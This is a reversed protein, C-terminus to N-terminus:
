QTLLNRVAESIAKGSAKGALQSTAKGMVKGMDQPSSAGVDAIIGQLTENLEEESLQKPLYASIVDAQYIEPEALDMRNQEEYVNASEQRQKVMKQLMKMEDESSSASGSTQLLLLEAKVARLAGLRKEDKAKMAEIIDSKIQETLSM